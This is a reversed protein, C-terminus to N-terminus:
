GNLKRRPCVPKDDLFLTHVDALINNYFESPSDFGESFIGKVWVSVPERINLIKKYDKNRPDIVIRFLRNEQDMGAIEIYKRDHITRSIQERTISPRAIKTQIYYEDDNTPNNTKYQFAKRCNRAKARRPIKILGSDTNM